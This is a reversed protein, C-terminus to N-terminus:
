ARGTLHAIFCSRTASERCKHTRGKAMDHLSRSQWAKVIELDLIMEMAQSISSYSWGQPSDVAMLM